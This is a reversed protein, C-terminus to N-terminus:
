VGNSGAASRDARARSPVIPPTDPKFVGRKRQSDQFQLEAQLRQLLKARQAELARDVRTNVTKADAAQRHALPEDVGHSTHALERGRYSLRLSGDAHQAIDV